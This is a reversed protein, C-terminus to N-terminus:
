EDPRDIGFIYTNQDLPNVEEQLGKPTNTVIRGPEQRLGM